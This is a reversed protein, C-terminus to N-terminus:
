GTDLLPSQADDGDGDWGVEHLVADNGRLKGNAM